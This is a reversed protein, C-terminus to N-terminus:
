TKHRKKGNSGTGTALIREVFFSLAIWLVISSSRLFLNNHFYFVTINLLGIIILLLISVGYKIRGFCFGSLFGVASTCALTGFVGLDCYPELMYTCVNYAGISYELDIPNYLPNNGPSILIGWLAELSYFPYGKPQVKEVASQFNLFNPAIYMYFNEVSYHIRSEFNEFSGDRTITILIIFFILFIAASSAILMNRKRVISQTIDSVLFFSTFLLIMGQLTYGRWGTLMEALMYVGTLVILCCRKTKSSTRKLALPVCALVFRLVSVIQYFRTAVFSSRYANANGTLQPVVGTYAVNLCFASIAILLLALVIDALKENQNSDNSKLKKQKFTGSFEGIWYLWFFIVTNLLVITQLKLTWDRYLPYVRMGLNMRGLIISGLWFVYWFFLPAVFLKTRLYELILLLVVFLSLFATTKWENRFPYTLAFAVCFLHFLVIEYICYKSIRM